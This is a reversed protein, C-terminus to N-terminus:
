GGRRSVRYNVGVVLGLGDRSRATVIFTHEGPKSTDVLHGSRRGGAARCSALGPGGEGEQCSFRSHVRQHLRYTKGRVPSQISATPPAAVRYTVTAKRRLGDRSIATVILRHMGPITTNLLSGSPRRSQDLCSKIGPGGPAEMCLFRSAEQVNRRYFVGPPPTIITIRPRSLTAFEAAGMDVTATGGPRESQIRPRGYIDKILGGPVLSNLGADITPSSYTEHVDGAAANLLMPNACIDGPGSVPSTGLCADSHSAAISTFGSLDSGTDGAVISNDLTLRDAAGGWIGATGGGPAGNGSVTSDTLTLAVPITTCGAYIGAGDGGSGGTIANGAVVDDTLQEPTPNTGGCGHLSLGAGWEWGSTGGPFSNDVFRDYRSTLSSGEVAEGGGMRDDTAGSTKLKMTNGQFLNGTQTDTWPPSGNGTVLLGAGAHRSSVAGTLDDIRNGAFADSTLTAEHAAVAAGGGVAGATNGTLSSTAVTVTHGSARLGGYSSAASNGAFKSGTVQVTGNTGLFAGGGFLAHNGSGPAGFVCNTVTIMGGTSEIDVAGGSGGSQNDFFRDGALTPSSAGTIEIAGGSGSTNGDRFTLNRIRTSGVGTGTLIPTNPSGGDFTAGNGAGRLVIPHGPLTFSMNTCTLGQVLTVTDESASTDLAHQLSGCDSVVADGTASPALTWAAAAACVLWVIAWLIRGGM